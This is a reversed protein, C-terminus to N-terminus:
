LSRCVTDPASQQSLSNLAFLLRNNEEASRVAVRIYNCGQMTLKTSCDKVLIHHQNVLTETLKRSNLPPLVECLFYNAQSPVVRLYPVKAMERMFREREERVATCAKTYFKEYKSFIQMYFEGVSNINWISTAKRVTACQRSDATAMLGLRLGPLGHPESISKLVTLHPNGALIDNHLLSAATGENSFDAYSEDVILQINRDGCWACLNMMQAHPIYNGSPTDPNMIVLSSIDEGRFHQMIDTASYAYDPGSVVMPVLKEAPIRNTYEDYSPQVVGVKGQQHTMLENIIEHIGNGLHTFEQKIGFIKAALLNNVRSGSPYSCILRDYNALLESKLRDTPFHPNNPYYFDLLRPYRWFGGHRNELRECKEKPECFISEAIDLDQIDDIEYWAENNLPLAKIEPKDLLTIVRLVQEYYENNGLAKCYAELFPVYHSGSFEKSFKYINVTKYYSHCEDYSFATGPIFKDIECNKGLKVVTGDMWSEYKSVLALSPTPDNLLKEIVSAEFILDSEFLLTDEQLLYDKALWLSYINNTSAYIPNDVYEVPTKINRTSIFDRLKQGEYGTVIIVRSLKCAQLSDLQNLLREILTVGNVKVMCKTNDQTLEGLRKGMGAALIIAQM